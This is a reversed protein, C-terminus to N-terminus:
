VIERERNGKIDQPFLDGFKFIDFVVVGGVPILQTFMENSFDNYSTWVSRILVEPPSSAPGINRPMEVHGRVDEFEVPLPKYIRNNRNMYM